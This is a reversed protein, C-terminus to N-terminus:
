QCGSWCVEDLSLSAYSEGSDALSSGTGRNRRAVDKLCAGLQSLLRPIGPIVITHSTDTM